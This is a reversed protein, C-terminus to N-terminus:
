AELYGTQTGLPALDFHFFRKDLCNLRVNTLRYALHVTPHVLKINSGDLSERGVIGV